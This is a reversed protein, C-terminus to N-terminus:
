SIPYNIVKIQVYLIKYKIKILTGWNAEHALYM